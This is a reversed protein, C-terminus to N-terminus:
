GDLAPSGPECDAGETSVEVFMVDLERGARIQTELNGCRACAYEYREPEFEVDCASCYLRLPVFEVDLVAESAVTDKKLAEFAFELADPVVSSLAGIRLGLREIRTAGQAEAQKFAINLASGM